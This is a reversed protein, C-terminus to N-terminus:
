SKDLWTGAHRTTTHYAAPPPYGRGRAGRAGALGGGDGRWRGLLPPAGEHFEGGRRQGGRGGGARTGPAGPLEGPPGAGGIDEALRGAAEACGDLVAIQAAEAAFTRVIAAGIGQGGGSVIVRRGALRKM